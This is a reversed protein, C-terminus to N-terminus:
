GRYIGNDLIKVFDYPSEQSLRIIRAMFSVQSLGCILGSCNALTYMDRIVELGNLYRNMPRSNKEEHVGVNGTTRHVDKYYLLRSGYRKQLADLRRTDDTALFVYDFDYDRFAEDIVSIFEDEMIINPHNEWNLAFDTGRIHVGLVKSDAKPILNFFDKKIIDDTIQNLKIYKSHVKALISLYEDTVTYGMTLDPNLNGLDREIRVAHAFEFFFVRQSQQAETITIHSVPQFYYEFPNSTGYVEQKEKYPCDDGYCVVPVFGLQDAEWLAYLTMRYHAGFGMTGNLKILFINKQPNLDGLKEIHLINPDHGKRMVYNVFESDNRHRWVRQLYNLVRHESLFQKIIKEAQIRCFSISIM